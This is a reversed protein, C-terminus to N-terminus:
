KLNPKILKQWFSRGSIDTHPATFHCFGEVVSLSFVFSLRRKASRSSVLCILSKVGRSGYHGASIVQWFSGSGINGERKIEVKVESM